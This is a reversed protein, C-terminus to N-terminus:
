VRERCSARGIERKLARIDCPSVLPPLLALERQVNEVTSLDPWEPQQRIAYKKWSDKKWSDRSFSKSMSSKRVPKLEWGPAPLTVPSHRMTELMVQRM